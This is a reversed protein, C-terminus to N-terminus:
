RSPGVEQLHDEKEKETIRRRRLFLMNEKELYVEKEGTLRSGQLFCIQRRWIYEESKERNQKGRQFFINEKELYLRGKGYGNM